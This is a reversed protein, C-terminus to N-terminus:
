GHTQEYAARHAESCFQGGRGPLADNRPLYVGCQSCAVMTDQRPPAQPSASPDGAAPRRKGSRVLWLVAAVVALLVLFKM